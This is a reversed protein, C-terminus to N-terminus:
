RRFPAALLRPISAAARPDREEELGLELTEHAGAPQPVYSGFLRDWLSILFSFNSGTEEPRVSHHVRHYDPTVFFLRLVADVPGPLAISAHQLVSSANLAVEFALVALFHAGLLAIAAFKFLMSAWIEGPHFRVGTSADLDLDLHHVKHLRWLLPARHFFRHQWYVALDLGIFALLFKAAFPWRVHHLLGLHREEALWAFDVAAMPLLWRAALAGLVLLAANALLRPGRPHKPRRRPLLGEAASALLFVLAFANFRLLAANM